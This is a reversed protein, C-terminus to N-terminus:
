VRKIGGPINDATSDLLQNTRCSLWTFWHFLDFLVKLSKTNVHMCTISNVSESHKHPNKKEYQKM